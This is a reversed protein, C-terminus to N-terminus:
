IDLIKKRTRHERGKLKRNTELKKAIRDQRAAIGAESIEFRRGLVASTEQTMERFLYIV